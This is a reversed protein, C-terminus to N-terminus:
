LITEPVTVKEGNQMASEHACIGAMTWNAAKDADIASQRNELIASVFEHVMHPYAGGHGGGQISSAHGEDAVKGSKKRTELLDICQEKTEAMPVTVATHKGAELSAKAMAYHESVPSMILIADLETFSLMKGFDTYLNTVGLDMGAKELEAPSRRCLAYLETNPHHKLIPAFNAGFGMGVLGFKLKREM